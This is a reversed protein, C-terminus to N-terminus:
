VFPFRFPLFMSSLLISVHDDAERSHRLHATEDLEYPMSGTRERDLVDDRSLTNGNEDVPLVSNVSKLYKHYTFLM